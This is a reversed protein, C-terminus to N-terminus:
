LTRLIAQRGEGKWDLTAELLAVTAACRHADNSKGQMALGVEQKSLKTAAIVKAVLVGPVSASSGELKAPVKLLGRSALSAYFAREKGRVELPVLTTPPTSAFTMMTHCAIASDAQAAKLLALRLRMTTEFDEGELQRGVLYTRGRVIDLGRMMSATLDAKGDPTFQASDALKAALEPQHQRLWDPDHPLGFVDAVTAALAQARADPGGGRSDALSVLFGLIILGGLVITGTLWSNGGEWSAIRRADLREELEPFHKRIGTLLGRVDAGNARLHRLPGAKGPRALETWAKHYRHGKQRVKREFRYGRLRAGLYDIAPRADIKGWEREWDFAAAADELLPASRPWADALLGALWTEMEGQRGIDSHHVTELVEGLLMRARAEDGEDMPSLGAPADADLMAALRAFPSQQSQQGVAAANEFGELLPVAFPDASTPAAAERGATESSATPEPSVRGLLQDGQPQAARASLAPDAQWDGGLTPAAHPWQPSALPEPPPPPPAPPKSLHAQTEPAPPPVTEPALQWEPEAGPEPAQEAAPPPMTKALRLATDRAGRLQAYGEVDSDLDMAKIRAAYASRIAKTDSTAAIGLLSWPFGRSSM